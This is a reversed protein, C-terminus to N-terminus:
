NIVRALTKVLQEPTFPKVMWGNAGAERGLTKKEESTETTLIIIPTRSYQPLMRLKRTLSIGDMRPVNVDLIFADIANDQAKEFGDVGDIAEVVKHGASTLSSAVMQRM